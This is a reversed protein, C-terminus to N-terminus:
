LNPYWLSHFYSQKSVLLLLLLLMLLVGWPFHGEGFLSSASKNARVYYSSRFLARHVFQLAVLLFVFLIPLLMLFLKLNMATKEVEYRYRPYSSLFLLMSIIAFLTLLKLPPTSSTLMTEELWRGKREKASWGIE